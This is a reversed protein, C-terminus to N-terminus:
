AGLERGLEDLLAEARDQGFTVVFGDVGGRELFPPEDLHEPEFAISTSIVDVIRRLWWGQEETFEAGAQEQRAIWAAFREEVLSRYPKVEDDLGLEYRLIGILDVVGRTTGPLNAAKGMQVYANYLGEPTWNYQPRSITAALSKLNRYVERPEGGERFALEFPAIKDQNAEMWERFSGVRRTALEESSIGTAEIVQDRSGEDYVIDHARRIDMLLVRLEPNAALPKWADMLLERPGDDGHLRRAKEQEDPDVARVLGGVIERLPQGAVQEIQVREGDGIQANLRSLRGALTATEDETLSMAATKDMLRKLSIQKESARVLPKADVRPSDTVGVADVIVFRTKAVADPTVAQFETPDVTRAGRGKMQEFYAWSKVDRMFFVCELPRVDTGTAIMDVTVAIRLEPSNRFAQILQDPNKAAHTIKVCFDDGRGFVLRALRVIDEAHNDDRAFILTKPVETRPKGQAEDGGPPFVQTFLNDRFTTLVTRIQDEAIVSKGLDSSKYDYDDELEQYRQRRTKRDKVPVVTEAPISGGQEGLETRIRFVDFDVNVGDAVAQEYTYESVLNQHFFGFTQAVPTATLGILHADFYELVARWKGYISRHCEDVVIFDFAEPPLDPNYAVEAPGDILDYRDLASDDTEAAPVERGTLAMWLRQITSIVVKSSDFMQAGSLQDVGYLETFKRGDDPPRYNSFETRAQRGLNNRDVLFLIRKARAHKILRYSEAVVTYTKGAGTAMQILARPDDKALSAELGKIAREQAPRLPGNDLFTSPLRRLRARLTPAQHDEEAETIWRALTAPQHIAFLRRSRADPDLDNFFRTENGDCVYQFPLTARWASLMQSNTLGSAYRAAQAQAATLDAGERKAEIVGALRHDVYLLYDARGVATSVERVAVGQAATLNMMNVDQVQWGAQTLLQDIEARVQAENMPPRAARQAREIFADRQSPSAKAFGPHTLGVRLQELEDAQATIYERLADSDRRAQELEREAQERALRERELRDANGDYRERAQALRREYETLTARLKALEREDTASGPVPGTTGPQPALFVRHTADRTISRHLWDALRFCNEVAALASRARRYHDHAAKNGLSRVAEFWNKVEPVLVGSRYLANIRDVQRNGDVRCSTLRVLLRTLLEGFLRAKYMAANPDTYVYSEAQAGLLVLEHDHELLFGFNPTREAIQKIRREDDPTLSSM